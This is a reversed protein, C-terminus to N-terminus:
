FCHPHSVHHIHLPFKLWFALELLKGVALSETVPPRTLCHHRAQTKGEDKAKQILHEIIVDNEAHFSTVVDLRGLEPLIEWLIDDDIRPFREPDTEFVSLKVGCAGLSALPEVDEKRARKALTALLAIDVHTEREVMDTKTKFREATNIAGAKDYPMEVITTVGGMAASATASVIGAGPTSLSHVHPDVLGPFVLKGPVDLHEQARIEEGPAHLSAIKGDRIGVIGDVVMQDPLVLTGRITMELPKNM